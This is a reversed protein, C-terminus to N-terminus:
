PVLPAILTGSFLVLGSGHLEAIMRPSVAAARREVRLSDPLYDSTGVLEGPELAALWQAAACTARRLAERAYVPLTAPDFRRGTSLITWGVCYRDVEREAERLLADLGGDDTPLTRDVDRGGVYARLDDPAAYVAM